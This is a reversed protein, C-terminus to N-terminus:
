GRLSEPFGPEPTQHSEQGTSRKAQNGVSGSGRQDLAMNLEAPAMPAFPFHYRLGLAQESGPM